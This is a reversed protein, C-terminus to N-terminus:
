PQPQAPPPGPQPSIPSPPAPHSSCSLHLPWSPPTVLEKSVGTYIMFLVIEDSGADGAIDTSSASKKYEEVSTVKRQRLFSDCIDPQNAKFWPLLVDCFWKLLSYANWVNSHPDLM